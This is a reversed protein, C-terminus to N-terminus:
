PEEKELAEARAAADLIAQALVRLAARKDAESLTLPRANPMPKPAAHAVSALKPHARLRGLINAAEARSLAPSPAPEVEQTRQAVPTDLEKTVKEGMAALADDIEHHDYPIRLTACRVKVAEVLEAFTACRESKLTDWIIKEYIRSRVPAAPARVTRM